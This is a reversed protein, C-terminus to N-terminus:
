IKKGERNKKLAGEIHLTSWDMKGRQWLFCTKSKKPGQNRALHTGIRSGITEWVQWWYSSSFYVCQNAWTQPAIHLNKSVYQVMSKASIREGHVDCGTAECGVKGGWIQKCILPFFLNTEKKTSKKATTKKKSERWKNFQFNSVVPVGDNKYKRNIWLRTWLEKPPKVRVSGYRVKVIRMGIYPTPKWVTKSSVPPPPDSTSPDLIQETLIPLFFGGNGVVDKHIKVM